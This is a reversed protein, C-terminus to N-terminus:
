KLYKHKLIYEADSLNNACRNIRYDTTVIVDKDCLVVSGKSMKSGWGKAHIFEKSDSWLEPVPLWGSVFALYLGEPSYLDPIYEEM